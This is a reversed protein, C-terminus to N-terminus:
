LVCPDFDLVTVKEIRAIYPIAGLEKAMEELIEKEIDANTKGQYAEPEEVLWATILALKKMNDGKLNLTSYRHATIFTIWTHIITAGNIINVQRNEM